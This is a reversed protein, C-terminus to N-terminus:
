FEIRARMEMRRPGAKELNFLPDCAWTCSIVGAGGPVSINTSPFNFNTLHFINSVVMMLQLGVRETLNVKKSFSMNHVHLGPGELVNVGSNGFRGSPPATFAATDFWRDVSRQGPSLNGDSIRDPLGSFTNTGSPDSGSYRPTFFSGTQFYALYFLTWGGIM